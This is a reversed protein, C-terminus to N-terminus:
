ENSSEVGLLEGVTKDNHQSAWDTFPLAVLWDEAVDGSLDRESTIESAYVFDFEVHSGSAAREAAAEASSKTLALVVLETEIRVMFLKPKSM